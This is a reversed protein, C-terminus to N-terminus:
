YKKVKVWYKFMNWWVNVILLYYWNLFIGIFVIFIGLIYGRGNIVDYRLFFFIYCKCIM